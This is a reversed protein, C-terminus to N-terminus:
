RGAAASPSACRRASSQICSRTATSWTGTWASCAGPAKGRVDVAGVAKDVFRFVTAGTPGEAYHAVGIELGPFDFELVRGSMSRDPVLHSQDSM